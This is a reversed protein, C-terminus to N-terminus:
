RKVSRLKKHGKGEKSKSWDKGETKVRAMGRSDRGARGGQRIGKMRSAVAGSFSHQPIVMRSRSARENAHITKRETRSEALELRRGVFRLMRNSAKKWTADWQYWSGSILVVSWGKGREGEKERSTEKKREEEQEEVKPRPRLDFSRGTTATLNSARKKM